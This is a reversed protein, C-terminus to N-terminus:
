ASPQHASGDRDPGRRALRAQRGADAVVGRGVGRRSGGAPPSSSAPATASRVLAPVADSAADSPRHRASACAVVAPRARRGVTAPGRVGTRRLRRRECDAATHRRRRRRAALRGPFRRHGLPLVRWRERGLEAAPPAHTGVSAPDDAGLALDILFRQQEYAKAPAADLRHADLDRPRPDGLPNTPPEVAADADRAGQAFLPCGPPRQLPLFLLPHTLLQNSIIRLSSEVSMHKVLKWEDEEIRLDKELIEEYCRFRALELRLTRIKKALAPVVAAIRERTAKRFPALIGLNRTTRLEADLQQETARIREKLQDVKLQIAEARSAHNSRGAAGFEALEVGPGGHLKEFSGRSSGPPTGDLLGGVSAARARVSHQRDLDVVSSGASTTALRQVGGRGAALEAKIEIFASELQEGSDVSPGIPSELAIEPPKSSSRLRAAFGPKPSPPALQASTTASSISSPYADLTSTSARPRGASRDALPRFAADNDDADSGPARRARVAFTSTSQTASFFASDVTRISLPGVTESKLAKAHSAAAAAGAMQAQGGTMGMGRMRVSATKFAAAYNIRAMWEGLEDDDGAQLIYQRGHPMVFRFANAYQV